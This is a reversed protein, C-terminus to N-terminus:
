RMINSQIVSTNQNSYLYTFKQRYSLGIVSRIFHLHVKPEIDFSSFLICKKPSLPLFVFISKSNFNWGFPWLNNKDELDFIVAGSDPLVFFYPDEAELITLKKLFIFDLLRGGIQTSLVSLVGHINTKDLIKSIEQDLDFGPKNVKSFFKKVDKIDINLSNNVFINLIEEKGKNSFIEKRALDNKILFYIYIKLQEDFAPTRTYQFGTYLALIYIELPIFESYKNELINKIVIIGYKEVIDAYINKEVFNWDNGTNINRSSYYNNLCAAKNRISVKEPSNKSDSYQYIQGKNNPQKSNIICFNELLQRQIYHQREQKFKPECYFHNLFTWIAVFVRSLPINKIRYKIFLKFLKEIFRNKLYALKKPIKM